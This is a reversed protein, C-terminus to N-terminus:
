ELKDLCRLQNRVIRLQDVPTEKGCPGARGDLGVARRRKGFAVDSVFLATYFFVM